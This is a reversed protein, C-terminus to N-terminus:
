APRLAAIMDAYSAFGLAPTIRQRWVADLEAMVKPGLQLRAEGVQGSRVKSSQSDAPLGAMAVSRERMLRDDFHDQHRQMFALSAHEETIALLEDDLPIGMFAAVRRITGPLDEKMHEYAMFLV